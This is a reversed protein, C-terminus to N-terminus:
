VAVSMVARIPVPASWALPSTARSGTLSTASKAFKASKASTGRVTRCLASGGRSAFTRNAVTSAVPIGYARRPHPPPRVPGRNTM